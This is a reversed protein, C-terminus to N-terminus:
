RQPLPYHARLHEGLQEAGFTNLHKGDYTLMKGSKRDRLRYDGDFFLPKHSIYVAGIKEIEEAFEGDYKYPNEAIYRNINGHPRFRLSDILVEAPSRGELFSFKGLLYVTKGAATLRAVTELIAAETLESFNAVLFIIDEDPADLVTQLRALNFQPCEPFFPSLRSVKESFVPACGMAYSAMINANPYATKLAIYVDIGRSDGLLLINTQDERREGCFIEGVPKCYETVFSRRKKMGKSPRLKLLEHAEDPMRSPWGKNEGLVLCAVMTVTVTSAICALVMSSRLGQATKDGNPVLRFRREVFHNLLAGAMLILLLLMAHDTFSLHTGFYYRYFVIIPWHTLYLSYSLRGLWSMLPNMLLVRACTSPGAILILAAGFLPILVTVGPLMMWGNFCIASYFILAIGSVTAINASGKYKRLARLGPLMSVLGGLAFEYFRLPTFFFAASRNIRLTIESAATGAVFTVVLLILVGRRGGQRHCAVLILPYVLYFQEEVGLSWTHLLVYKEASVSWYSAESWFFFNSLSLLAFFSEKATHLLGAPQQLYTAFALVIIITAILAPLIRTTRRIYFNSFTFTDTELGSVIIQTILYGSLVFFVDVGIFGGLFAKLELHFFIIVLVSIARLGDIEKQYSKDTM